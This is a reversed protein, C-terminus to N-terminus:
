RIGTKKLQVRGDADIGVIEWQYTKGESFVEVHDGTSKLEGGVIAATRGGLKSTGSIKIKGAASKWGSSDLDPEGQVSTKKQWNEPFFGVPWFPDRLLEQVQEGASEKKSVAPLAPQVVPLAPKVASLSVSNTAPQAAAPPLVTAVASAVKGSPSSVTIFLDDQAFVAPSFGVLATLVACQSLFFLFRSNM